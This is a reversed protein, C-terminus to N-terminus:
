WSYRVNLQGGFVFDYAGGDQMSIGANFVWAKYRADTGLELL